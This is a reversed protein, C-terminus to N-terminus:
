YSVYLLHHRVQDAFSADPILNVLDMALKRERDFVDVISGSVDLLIM